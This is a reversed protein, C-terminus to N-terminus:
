LIQASWSHRRRGVRWTVTIIDPEFMDSAPMFSAIRVVSGKTLQAHELQGWATATNGEPLEIKVDEAVGATCVLMHTSYRKEIVWSVAQDQRRVSLYTLLGVALGAASLLTPPIWAESM